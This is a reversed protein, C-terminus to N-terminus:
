TEGARVTISFHVAFVKAFRKPKLPGRAPPIEVWPPLADFVVDTIM